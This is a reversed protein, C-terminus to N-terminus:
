EDDINDDDLTSLFTNHSNEIRLWTSRRESREVCLVYPLLGCSKFLSFLDIFKSFILFDALATGALNTTYVVMSM